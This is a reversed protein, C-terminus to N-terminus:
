HGRDPDVFATLPPPPQRDLRWLYLALWLGALAALLLLDIAQHLWTPDGPLAFATPALRHLRVAHALFAFASVLALGRFRRPLAVLCGAAVIEGALLALRASSAPRPDAAVLWAQRALVLLADAVLAAALGLRLLRENRAPLVKPEHHALCTLTALALALAALAPGVLAVDLVTRIPAAALASRLRTLSEEGYLALPMALAAMLYTTRAGARLVAHVGPDVRGVRALLLLLCGLTAGAWLQWAFFYAHWFSDTRVSWVAVSLTLGMLGALACLRRVIEIPSPVPLEPEDVVIGQM